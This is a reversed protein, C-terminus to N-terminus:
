HLRAWWIPPSPPPSARGLPLKSPLFTDNTLAAMLAHVVDHVKAKLAGEMTDLTRIDEMRLHRESHWFWFVILRVCHWAVAVCPWLLSACKDVVAMRHAPAFMCLHVLRLGVCWVCVAGCVGGLGYGGWGGGVCQVGSETGVVYRLRQAIGRHGSAGAGAGAGPASSQAALVPLAKAEEYVKAWDSFLLHANLVAIWGMHENLQAPTECPTSLAPLPPRLPTSLVRHTISGRFTLFAYCLLLAVFCV